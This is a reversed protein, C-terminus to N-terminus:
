LEKPVCRVIIHSAPDARTKGEMAIAVIFFNMSVYGNLEKIQIQAKNLCRYLRSAFRMCCPM